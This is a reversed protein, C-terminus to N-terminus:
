KSKSRAAQEILQMALLCEQYNRRIKAQKPPAIEKIEQYSDPPILPNLTAIFVTIQNLKEMIVKVQEPNAPNGKYATWVGKDSVDVFPAHWVRKFRMAFEARQRPLLMSNLRVYLRRAEDHSMHPKKRWFSICKDMKRAQPASLREKGNLQLDKITRMWVRLETKGIPLTHPASSAVERRANALVAKEHGRQHPMLSLLAWVLGPILLAVGVNVLLGTTCFGHYLSGSSSFSVAFPLATKKM